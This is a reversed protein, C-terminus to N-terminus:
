AVEFLFLFNRRRKVEEMFHFILSNWTTTTCFLCPFTCFFHSVRAFNDNQRKFTRTAMLDDSRLTGETTSACVYRIRFTELLSSLPFVALVEGTRQGSALGGSGGCIFSTNSRCRATCLNDDVKYATYNDNSCYCEKLSIFAWLHHEGECYENCHALDAEHARLTNHPDSFYVETM